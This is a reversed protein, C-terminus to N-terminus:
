VCTYNNLLRLDGLGGSLQFVERLSYILMVINPAALQGGGNVGPKMLLACRGIRGLERKRYPM